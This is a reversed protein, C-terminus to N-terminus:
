KKIVKVTSGDTKRVVYIGKADMSNVRRGDLTYVAKVGNATTQQVKEIGTSVGKVLVTYTSANQLDNSIVKVTVLAGDETQEISTTIIAGQGDAEATIDDLSLEGSASLEYETKGAELAIDTGKINLSTLNSNYILAIDDVFLQDLNDANTSGVGPEANTSLTVLLAKAEANNAAYTEYDFPIVIRQWAFDNSEIKNNSAKAVVNAAISDGPDQYYGGNTLIASITAYKYDANAEALDGQKFKVWVALSDPRGNLVTYFPDGNGDLEENAFDLFACNAPNAPEFDGAQMRGTTMTGNAAQFGLVISSQILVSKAGTSGPRTEESISTSGNYLAIKTFFAWPGTAVGSNFSHWANPEDSSYTTSGDVYEATHFEEFGSNKIQYGGDGFVVDVGGFGNIKIVAYLNDDSSISANLSVPVEGLLSGMWFGVSPDDGDAITIIQDASLITNDGNAIGEVDTLVINGIGGLAELKFNNLSLTYKGNEQETVSVTTEQTGIPMGGLSVSLQNTYDKANSSMAILAAATLTLIKKM